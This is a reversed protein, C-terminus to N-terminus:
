SGTSLEQQALGIFRDRAKTYRTVDSGDAAKGAATAATRIAASSVLLVAAQAAREKEPTGGLFFHSELERLYTVYTDRRLDQM